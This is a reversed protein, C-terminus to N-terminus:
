SGPISGTDFDLIEGLEVFERRWQVAGAEDRSAGEIMRVYVSRAMAYYVNQIEWLNVEIPLIRALEMTKKMAHILSIDSPNEEFRSMREDLKRRIILEIEVTDYRLGWKEMEKVIGGIHNDDLDDQSFAKKLDLNLTFEAAARFANPVAMGAERFLNMLIREGQFLDRYVIEFKEFAGRALLNMIARQRDRFLSKFSYNHMGFHDDM